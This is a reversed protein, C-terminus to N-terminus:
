QGSSLTNSKALLTIDVLIHETTVYTKELQKSLTRPLKDHKEHHPEQPNLILDNICSDPM